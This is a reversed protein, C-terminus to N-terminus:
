GKTDKKEQTLEGNTIKDSIAIRDELELLRAKLEALREENINLKGIENLGMSM